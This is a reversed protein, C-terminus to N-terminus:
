LPFSRTSQVPRDHLVGLLLIDCVGAMQGAMGTTGKKQYVILQEAKKTGNKQLAYYENNMYEVFPSPGIKWSSENKPIISSGEYVSTEENEEDSVAIASPIIVPSKIVTGTEEKDRLIPEKEM